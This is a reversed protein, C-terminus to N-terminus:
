TKTVDALNLNVDSVEVCAEAPIPEKSPVEPKDYLPNSFRVQGASNDFQIAAQLMDHIHVDYAYM